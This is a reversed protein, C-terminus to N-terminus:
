KGIYTQNAVIIKKDVGVFLDFFIWLFNWTFFVKMPTGTVGFIDFIVRFHSYSPAYHSNLRSFINLIQLIM